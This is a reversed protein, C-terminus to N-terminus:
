ARSPTPALLEEAERRTAPEVGYRLAASGGIKGSGIIGIPM